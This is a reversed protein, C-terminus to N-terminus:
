YGHARGGTSVETQMCLPPLSVMNRPEPNEHGAGAAVEEKIQFVLLLMLHLLRANQNVMARGEGGRGEGRRSESGGGEGRCGSGRCGGGRGHTLLVVGFVRVKEEAQCGLVKTKRLAHRGEVAVAAAVAVAEVAAAAAQMLRGQRRGRGRDGARERVRSGGKEGLRGRLWGGGRRGGVGARAQVNGGGGGRGGGTGGGKGGGAGRGWGM